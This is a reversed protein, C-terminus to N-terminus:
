RFLEPILECVARSLRAYNVLLQATTKADVFLNQKTSLYTGTKAGSGIGSAQTLGVGLYVNLIRWRTEEIWSKLKKLNSM